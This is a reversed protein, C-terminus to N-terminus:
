KSLDAKSNSPLIFVNQGRDYKLKNNSIQKKESAYILTRLM